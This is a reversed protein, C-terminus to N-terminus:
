RFLCETISHHSAAFGTCQARQAMRHRADRDPSYRSNALSDNSIPNQPRLTEDLEGWFARLMRLAPLYLVDLRYFNGDIKLTELRHFELASSTCHPWSGAGFYLSVLNAWAGMTSNPPPITYNESWIDLHEIREKWQTDYYTLVDIQHAGLELKNLKYAFADLRSSFVSPLSFQAPFVLREMTSVSSQSVIQWLLYFPAGYMQQVPAMILSLSEIRLDRFYEDSINWPEDYSIKDAHVEFSVPVSKARQLADRLQAGDCCITVNGKSIARTGAHTKWLEILDGEFNGNYKIDGYRSSYLSIKAWLTPTRTCM